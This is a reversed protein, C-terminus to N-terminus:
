RASSCISFPLDQWSRPAGPLCCLHTALLIGLSAGGALSIATAFGIRPEESSPAPGAASAPTAFHLRM